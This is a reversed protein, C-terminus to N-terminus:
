GSSTVRSEEQVAVPRGRLATRNTCPVVRHRWNEADRLEIRHRSSYAQDFGCRPCLLPPREGAESDVVQYLDMEGRHLLTSWRRDQARQDVQVEALHRLELYYWLAFVVLMLLSVVLAAVALQWPEM